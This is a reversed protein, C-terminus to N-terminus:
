LILQKKHTIRLLTIIIEIFFIRWAMNKYEQM